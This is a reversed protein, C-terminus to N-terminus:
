TLTEDLRGFRQGLVGRQKYIAPVRQSKSVDSLAIGDSTEVISTLCEKYDYGYRNKKGMQQMLSSEQQDQEQDRLSV